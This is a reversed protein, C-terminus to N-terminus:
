GFFSISSAKKAGSVNMSHIIVKDGINKDQLFEAVRTGTNPDKTSVFIRGGLDHDLLFLDYDLSEQLSNIAQDAEKFITLFHNLFKQKFLNIRAESDELIFIKM